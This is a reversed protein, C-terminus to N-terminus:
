FMKFVLLQTSYFIISIQQFSALDLPNQRLDLSILSTLNQFIREPLTVINCNFLNLTHLSNSAFATSAEIINTNNALILHTLSRAQHFENGHLPKLANTSLDIHDLHSLKVIAQFSLLM